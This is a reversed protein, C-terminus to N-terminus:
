HMPKLGYRKLIENIAMNDKLTIAVLGKLMQRQIAPDAMSTQFKRFAPDDLIQSIRELEADSMHELAMRWITDMYGGKETLVKSLASATEKKVALWTDRSVGPNNDKASKLLMETFPSDATYIASQVYISIIHDLLVERSSTQAAAPSSLILLTSTLVVFLKM